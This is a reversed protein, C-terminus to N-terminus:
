HWHLRKSLHFYFSPFVLLTLLMSTILGGAIVIAMPAQIENGTKTSYFILPVLALLSTLATMLVPALRELSGRVVTDFLGTSEEKELTEWHSVLIIGNRVTIGFLTIFGLLSPVSYPTKTLYMAFLGGALAFPVNLLMFAAKQWNGFAIILIVLIAITIIVASITIAKSARKESEFQGGFHVSYGEPLKVQNDMAKQLRRVAGDTDSTSFSATILIRRTGNERRIVEPGSANKYYAIESVPIYGRGTTSIRLNDFTEEFSSHKSKKFQLYIDRYLGDTFIWGSKLGYLAMEFFDAAEGTGLGAEPLTFHKLRIHKQATSTQPEINVDTLGSITGMLAATQDALDKLTNLNDGTIKVALASRAGSLMHDIRHSVPQGMQFKIGKILALKERIETITKKTSGSKLAVEIETGTISQAHEDKEARGTKGAVSIVGPVELIAKEALTALRSSEDLNLGSPVSVTINLAGENWEPLFRRGPKSMVTAAGAIVIIVIAIPGLPYRVTARLAPSYLRKLVRLVPSEGHKEQRDPHLLLFSLAPTLTISILLSSLNATIYTFGLPAILRGEMGGTFFVPIFVLAILINAFFVGKLVERSAEFIVSARGPREEEPLLAAMNMRRWSNEVGIICDDILVGIALTLGGLSMTNISVSFYKMLIFSIFLSLPLATISIFATRWNLMFIFLIITILAAGWKLSSTVNNISTKIFEAQNYLDGTLIVGPPLRKRIEEIKKRIRRTLEVTDVDPQRIVTFMVGVKGNIRSQGTPLLVDRKISAIESLPIFSGDERKIAIQMIEKESQYKGFIRIMSQRHNRSAFGASTNRATELAKRIEQWNVKHHELKVPDISVSFIGTLGGSTVVRSVGQIQQIERQVMRIGTDRLVAQSVSDSTIGFSMIEGMVSAEPTIVPTVTVEPLTVTQLKEAVQQRAKLIDVGWDFDAWVMSYGFMSASRTRRIGKLGALAMEVPLTVLVETEEPAMMGTETIVAVSPATLDPFVDRPSSQFAFIGMACILLAAFIIVAPRRISFSIINIMFKM